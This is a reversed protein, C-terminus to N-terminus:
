GFNNKVEELKEEVVRIMESKIDVLARHFIESHEPCLTIEFNPGINYTEVIQSNATDSDLLIKQVNVQFIEAHKACLCISCIKCKKVGESNYPQKPNLENRRICIDCIKM